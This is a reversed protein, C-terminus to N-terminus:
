PNLREKIKFPRRGVGHCEYWHIEAEYIEDNSDRVLAVGKLKRWNRGGFKAGLERHVRLRRSSAIIQVARIPGLVEVLLPM